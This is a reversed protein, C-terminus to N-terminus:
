PCLNSTDKTATRADSEFGSAFTADPNGVAPPSVLGNIYEEIATYGSAMITTHDSSDGANLGHSNEWSDPMGDGDSDPLPDGPALGELWDSPRINGWSGTGNITDDVAWETVVDRPWAGADSLVANYGDSNSDVTVALYGSEATFDFLAAHDFMGANIGCCYFGYNDEFDPTTFPNDVRGLFTGPDDVWNDWVYYDSTPNNEPDFWFPSLNASPGDIYTNGIINFEGGAPNHHVFGEKANYIVNNNVDGPGYSFAPSRSKNHAFLNHHLSVSHGAPGVILGYNHYDGDPHGGGTVPFTITSWQVTAHHASYLDVNEDIGHSADIHDFIFYSATSFQISDHQNPSLSDLPPRVRVHRIIINTPGSDYDAHLHGDITIGAGPATQGAITLDGHPIELTSSSLGSLDIVGSVDFVVIRPGPRNVAWTLSGTGSSNLNTVKYVNGGRGGSVCAGFGEAGPFAPPAAKLLPAACLAAFLVTTLRAPTLNDRTSNASMTYIYIHSRTAMM